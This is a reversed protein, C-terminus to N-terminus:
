SSPLSDLFGDIRRREAGVAIGSEEAQWDRKRSLVTMQLM